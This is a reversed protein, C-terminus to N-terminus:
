PREVSRSLKLREGLDAEVVLRELPHPVRGLREFAAENEHGPGRPAALGRREISEHLMQVALVHFM